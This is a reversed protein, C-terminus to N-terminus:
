PDESSGNTGPSKPPEPKKKVGRLSDMWEQIERRCQESLPARLALFEDATYRDEAAVSPPQMMEMMAATLCMTSTIKYIKGGIPPFEHTPKQKKKPDGVFQVTLEAAIEFARTEEAEELRWLTLTFPDDKPEGTTEDIDQFTRTQPTREQPRREWVNTKAM